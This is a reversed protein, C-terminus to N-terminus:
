IDRRASGNNVEQMIVDRIQNYILAAPFLGAHNSVHIVKSPICFGGDPHLDNLLDFPSKTPWVNM